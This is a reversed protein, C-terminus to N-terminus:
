SHPRGQGLDFYVLSGEAEDLLDLLDDELRDVRGPDLAEITLAAELANATTRLRMRLESIPLKAALERARHILYSDADAM